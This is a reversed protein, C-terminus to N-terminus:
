KRQPSDWGSDRALTRICSAPVMKDPFKLTGAAARVKGRHCQVALVMIHVEPERGVTFTPTAQIDRKLDVQVGRSSTDSRKQIVHTYRKPSVNLNSLV